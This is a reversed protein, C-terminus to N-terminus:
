PAIMDGSAAQPPGPPSRLGGDRLAREVRELRTAIDRQGAQLRLLTVIASSGAAVPVLWTVVVVLTIVREPIGFASPL